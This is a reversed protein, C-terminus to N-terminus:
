GLRLAVHMVGAEQRKDLSLGSNELVKLMPLNDPLVEAILVKLGARRALAVLHRLLASGIGQGQYRDEVTFAFEAAGPRAVVYRGGGIIVDRGGEKTVAVLAVHDTFDVNLFFSIEKASFDRKVAFFRRYLSPAGTRGVAAVMNAQDDPRLARIEIQQGNRLLEVTSFKAAESM